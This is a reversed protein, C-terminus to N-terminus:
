HAREFRIEDTNGALIRGAEDVRLRVEPRGPITFTVVGDAMVIAPEVLRPEDSLSFSFMRLAGGARARALLPEILAVSPNLYITTGPPGAIKEEFSRGDEVMDMILSDGRLFLTARFAPETAAAEYGHIDLHYVRAQDDLTARYTIRTGQGLDLMEGTVGEDIVTFHEIALTDAGRLYLFTSREALAAPDPATAIGAQPDPPAARECATVLLLLALLAVPQMAAGNTPEHQVALAAPANLIAREGSTRV